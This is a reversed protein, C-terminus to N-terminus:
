MYFNKVDTSMEEKRNKNNIFREFAKELDDKIIIKKHLYNKGIVRSAHTM